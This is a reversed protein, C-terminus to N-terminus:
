VELELILPEPLGTPFVALFKGSWRRKVETSQWKHPLWLLQRGRSDLVWGDDTVQYGYPSHWSLGSQPKQEEWLKKLVIAEAGDDKVIAWKDVVGSGTVCCVEKGGLTFEPISGNSKAVMLQEGTHIDYISLAERYSVLSGFAVYNLDPSISAYLQKIPEPHELRTTQISNEISWQLDPACDGAPLEWAVAKGKCVVIIKREVVGMGCIEMDTDIVLQPNGSKINLISVTKGLRQAVAVLPQNSFFELLFDKTHQSPQISVNPSSTPSHMTYWLQLISGGRTIISNGSSIISGGNPSILPKVEGVNSIQTGHLHYGDSSKKWLFFTPSGAGCALFNGDPSFFVNQPNDLDTSNLLIKQHQADWVIVSGEDIFALCHFAPLPALTKGSLNDPTPLSDIQTPVCNSTFDVEWITISESEITTFQLHEGHTWITAATPQQISYSSIQIGSYIDYTIITDRGFLGGLMMGCGSYAMSNCGRAGNVNINSILGGTQLDWSVICEPEDSYATLLHGDPSFMLQRWTIGEGQHDLTHLQGLTTGDLVVVKSFDIRAIAIFRSCSSWVVANIHTPFTVNAISSEWVVPAGQIVRILPKAQSGYLTQVISERPSM